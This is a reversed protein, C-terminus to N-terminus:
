YKFTGSRRLKNAIDRISLGEFGKTPNEENRSNAAMQASEQAKAKKGAIAKDVNDQVQGTTLRNIEGAVDEFSKQAMKPLLSKFNPHDQYKKVYETMRKKGRSYLMDNAVNSDVDDALKFQHKFFEGDVLSKLEATEANKLRSSESKEIQSQREAQEELQRELRALKDSKDLADIEAASGTERVERDQLIKSLYAEPDMGTAIKIVAMPDHKLSELKDLLDAKEQLSSQKSEMEKLMKEAKSARNFADKQGEQMSLRKRVEAMTLEQDQGNAKFKVIQDADPVIEAASEQVIEEAVSSEEGVNDWFDSPGVEIDSEITQLDSDLQAIPAEPAASVEEKLANVEAKMAEFRDDSM